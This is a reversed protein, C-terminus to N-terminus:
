HSGGSSGGGASSSGSGSSSAGGSVGGGSVGGSTGVGATGPSAGSSSPAGRLITNYSTGASGPHLTNADPNQRVAASTGDDIQLRNPSPAAPDIRNTEVPGSSSGPAETTPTGTRNGPMNPDNGNQQTVSQQIRMSEPLSSDTDGQQAWAPVAPAVVLISVPVIWSLKM